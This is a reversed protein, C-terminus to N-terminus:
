VIAALKKLTRIMFPIMEALDDIQEESILRNFSVTTESKISKNDASPYIIIKQTVTRNEGWIEKVTKLIKKNIETDNEHEAIFVIMVNSGSLKVSQAAPLLEAALNELEAKMIFKAIIKQAQIEGADIFSINFERSLKATNILDNRDIVRIEGSLDRDYVAGEIVVKMNEFATPDFM